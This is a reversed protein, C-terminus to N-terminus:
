ASRDQRQDARRTNKRLGALCSANGTDHTLGAARENSARSDVDDVLAGVCGFAVHASDTVSPVREVHQLGAVATKPYRGGVILIRHYRRHMDTAALTCPM